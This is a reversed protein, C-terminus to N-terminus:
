YHLNMHSIQENNFQFSKWSFPSSFVWNMPHFCFTKFLINLSTISFFQFLVCARRIYTSIKTDVSVPVYYEHDFTVRLTYSTSHKSLIIRLGYSIRFIELILFSKFSTLMLLEWLYELVLNAKTDKMRIGFVIAFRSVTHCKM